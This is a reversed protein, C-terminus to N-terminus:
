LQEGWTDFNRGEKLSKCRDALPDAGNARKQGGTKEKHQTLMANFGSAFNKMAFVRGRWFGDGSDKLAGQMVAMITAEDHKGLLAQAQEAWKNLTAPKLNTRGLTQCLAVTVRGAADSPPAAGLSPPPTPTSTSASISDSSDSGSHANALALSNHQTTKTNDQTTPTGKSESLLGVPTRGSDSRIGKGSWRTKNAKVADRSRKVAESWEASLRPNELRGDKNLIFKGMVLESVNEVRALRALRTPDNPLTCGEGLLWAKQLLLFYSGIEEATMLEVDPSSM